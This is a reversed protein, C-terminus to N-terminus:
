DHLDGKGEIHELAEVAARKIYDKESPNNLIERLLPISKKSRLKGLAKIAYQKVQPRNENICGLLGDESRIDGIKGLASCCMRKINGDSCRLFAILSPVAARSKLEGLLWIYFHCEDKSCEFLSSIAHKEIRKKDEDSMIGLANIREEKGCKMLKKILDEVKEAGEFIRYKVKCEIIQREIEAREKGRIKCITKIDKGETYLLYSIESDSLADINDWSIISMEVM